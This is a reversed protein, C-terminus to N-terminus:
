HLKKRITNTNNILSNKKSDYYFSTIDNEQFNYKKKDLLLKQLETYFGFGYGNYLERYGQNGLEWFFNNNLLKKHGFDNTRAVYYTLITYGIGNQFPLPNNETIFDRDSTIYFIHKLSLKPVSSIMQELIPRQTSAREVQYDLKTSISSIQILFYTVFMIFGLRKLVNFKRKSKVTKHFVISLQYFFLAIILSFAILFTYYYRSEFYASSKNIVIFPIFCLMYLVTSFLIPFKNRQRLLFLFMPFLILFALLLSLLELMVKESVQVSYGVTDFYPFIINTLKHSYPYFYEDPILLQSFTELPYTIFGWVIKYLGGGSNSSVYGSYNQTLFFLKLFKVGLFFLGILFIGISIKSLRWSHEKYIRYLLEICPLFLVLFLGSEKFGLSLIMFIVAAYAKTKKHEILYLLFFYVSLLIGTTSLLTGTVAGFWIIAQKSTDNILFILSGLLSFYITNTLKKAIKFILFANISHVTIAFLSLPIINFPLFGFFLINLFRALPRNELFLIDLLSAQSFIYSFGKSIIFGLAHWEDQQYFTFFLKYFVVLCVLLLFFFYKSDHKFIKGPFKM